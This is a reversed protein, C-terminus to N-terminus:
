LVAPPRGAYFDRFRALYRAKAEEEMPLEGLKAAVWDPDIAGIRKAPSGAALSFPPIDEGVTSFPLLVSGEGVKCGAFVVSPGALFCGAGIVTPVRKILPSGSQNSKCLNTLFSTHSWIFVGLGISTHEGIELGGSADLKADEGIWVSPGCTLKERGYIKAGARMRCGEPLGNLRAREDDTMLAGVFEALIDPRLANARDSSEFLPTAPQPGPM